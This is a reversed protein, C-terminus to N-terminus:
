RIGESGPLANPPSIIKIPTPSDIVEDDSEELFEDEDGDEYDDEDYDMLDEDMMQVQDSGTLPLLYDYGGPGRSRELAALIRRCKEPTDYPGAVFFPKGRQGYEFEDPCAAADIDGFLLKAKGYDAHPPLGLANAYAVAGEVLKRAAAPTLSERRFRPRIKEVMWEEYAAGGRVGIIVDKVGLCYRDVLYMTFAVFQKPMRRALHVYGMGSDWLDQTVWSEVVPHAAAIRLQSAMSVNKARVIEHHKAKRKAAKRAQQKQHKRADRAM